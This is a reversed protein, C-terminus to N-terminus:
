AGPIRTSIERPSMRGASVIMKLAEDVSIKTRVVEEERMIQLFGTAPNPATPILVNLLKEGSADTVENTVFGLASMGKRPFEVLVVQMFGTKGPATFSELIQRIGIYLQRFVPVRALLHEGYRILRKGVVNRTILGALYILVITAGFGVGPITHHWIARVLPQLISDIASFIWVLILISAGVPVIILLGAVFTERLKKGLSNRGSISGPTRLSENM